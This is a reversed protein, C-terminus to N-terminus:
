LPRLMEPRAFKKALKSTPPNPRFSDNFFRFPVAFQVDARFNKLELILPRIRKVENGVLWNKARTQRDTPNQAIQIMKFFQSIAMKTTRVQQQSIEGFYLLVSM